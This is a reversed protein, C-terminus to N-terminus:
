HREHKHKSLQQFKQKIRAKIRLIRSSVNSTTIGMIEAIEQHDHGELHLIILAKDIERLEAIYQQLRRLDPKIEESSSNETTFIISGRAMPHLIQTRRKEKKYFSISVNLAICYIWTSMKYRSDYKHFAHWLQIIIEQILDKRDEEDHCYASAIKYLIGKQAEMAKIFVTQQGESKM